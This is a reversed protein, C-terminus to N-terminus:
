GRLTATLRLPKSLMDLADTVRTSVVDASALTNCFAGEDLILAIGLAAAKLMLRDNRGNGMAVCSDAGLAQIYDRKGEAQHQPPLIHVNCPLGATAQQVRGFTDATIIHLKLQDILTYLRRKVGKILEGDVALTGNYDMVLHALQLAGYGPVHITIM